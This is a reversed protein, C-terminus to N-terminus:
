QGAPRHVHREPDLRAMDQLRGALLLLQQRAILEATHLADRADMGIDQVADRAAQLQRVIDAINIEPFEGLLHEALTPWDPHETCCRTMCQVEPRIALTPRVPSPETPADHDPSSLQTM